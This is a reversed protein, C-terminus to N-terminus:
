ICLWRKCINIHYLSERAMTHEISYGGKRGIHELIGPSNIMLCCIRANNSCLYLQEQTARL